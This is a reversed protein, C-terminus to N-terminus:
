ASLDPWDLNPHFNLTYCTNIINKTIFFKIDVAEKTALLITKNWNFKWINYKVATIYIYIYIYTWILTNFISKQPSNNQLNKQYKIFFNFQHSLIMSNLTPIGTEILAFDNTTSNQVGLCYKIM